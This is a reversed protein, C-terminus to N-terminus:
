DTFYNPNIEVFGYVHIYILFTSCIIFYMGLQYSICNKYMVGLLEDCQPQNRVQSQKHSDFTGNSKNCLIM